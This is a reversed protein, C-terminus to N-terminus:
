PYCIVTFNPLFHEVENPLPRMFMNYCFLNHWAKTNIVRINLRDSHHASVYADRVYVTKNNLDEVVKNLLNEFVVNSVPKNVEGWFVTDRTIDDEVIYRDEPSRGTFKGTDVVLAGNDALQGERNNLAEEVLDAPDLNWVVKKAYIIRDNIETHINPNIEIKEM